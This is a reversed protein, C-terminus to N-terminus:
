PTLNTWAFSGCGSNNPESPEAAPTDLAEEESAANYATQCYWLGDSNEIWDFRSWLEPDYLNGSDNQAIAYNDENSFATILFISDGMTWVQSDVTHDTGWQDSYAGLIEIDDTDTDTDAIVDTDTDSDNEPDTESCATFLILSWLATLSRLTM